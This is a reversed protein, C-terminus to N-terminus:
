KDLETLDTLIRRVIMNGVIDTLTQSVAFLDQDLPGTMMEKFQNLESDTVTVTYERTKEEENRKHKLEM